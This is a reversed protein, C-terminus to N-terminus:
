RDSTKENKSAICHPCTVKEWLWSVRGTGAAAPGKCLPFRVKYLPELRHTNTWGVVLKHIFSRMM